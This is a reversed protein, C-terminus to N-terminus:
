ILPTILSLPLLNDDHLNYIHHSFSFELFFFFKKQLNPNKREMIPFFTMLIGNPYLRFNSFVLFFDRTRSQKSDQLCPLIRVILGM